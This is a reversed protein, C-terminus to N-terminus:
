PSDTPVQALWVRITTFFNNTHSVPALVQAKVTETLGDGNNTAYLEQVVNTGTNWTLLDASVFVGYAVVRPPLLRTYTLTFHALGDNTNVEFGYQFAPNPSPNRPDQNFAYEVFNVLGDHDFDAGAGSIKPFTLEELSFNAISWYGYPSDKITITAPGGVVTYAINTLVTAVATQDGKINYELIPTLPIVVSNSGAPFTIANTITVYNVGNSATGSFGLYVTLEKSDGTRTVTYEGLVPGMDAAQGIDATISVQTPELVTVTVDSFTTIQGDNATLRFRYDGPITFVLTNTLSGADPIVVNNTGLYLWETVVQGPPLPLGDDSVTGTLTVPIGIQVEVNAGASVVPGHNTLPNEALAIIQNPELALPFVQVEDVSGNWAAPSNSAGRGVIWQPCNTMVGSQGVFGAAPQDLQGNFYLKPAGGNTWTVAINQWQNPTLVGSASDHYIAGQTTPIVVEVLNTQTGCYATARTSLSFTPNGNADDAALIGRNVYNTAPKVWLSVTFAKLGNLFQDAPAERVWDNTGAFTLADGLIGNTTWSPNGSFSGNRGNGSTDAANTGTGDDFPWHLSNTLGLQDAGVIVTLEASGTFVGNTAMLELVYVGAESFLVTTDLSNTNEFQLTSPGSVESWVVSNSPSDDVVSGQLVLGVHTGVLFAVNNLPNTITVLPRQGPGVSDLTIVANSPALITYAANTVLSANLSQSGAPTFHNTASFTLDISTVGCTFYVNTAFASYDVGYVATGGVVLYAMVEYKPDGTRSLRFVGNTAGDVQVTPTLAAITLMPQDDNITVTGTTPLGLFYSPNPLLTLVVTKPGEVLHDQIPQVPLTVFFQGAPIVISNTILVYEAGNKATGGITYWVTVPANTTGVRSFTFQGTDVGPKAATFDSADLWVTQEDDQVTVTAASPYDAHYTGDELLTVIVTREGDVQHDDLPVVNVTANTQGAPITVGNTFTVYNVGGTATGSITFSVKLANTAPGTRTFLFQGNGGATYAYPHNTATVNVNPVNNTYHDILTVTATAPSGVTGNTASILTLFVTQTALLLHNNVPIVPLDVFQAGAPISASTGLAAYDNPASASGTIQFTVLESANTPGVRSIRFNGNVPGPESAVPATATVSITAADDNLITYTHIKIGGLTANVPNFLAVQVTQAPQNSNDNIINLPVFAVQSGPQITLTGQPLAYRSRPATGGIVRYDVTVTQPYNTSLVVAIGPSTSEPYASASFCFSVGPETSLGDDFINMAASAPTGLNYGPSAQLTLVLTQTDELIYDQFPIVDLVVSSSGDPIIVPSPLPAFNFGSVATGNVIFYVPLDGSTGTRTFTFEGFQTGQESVDGGTAKVSVTPLTQDLISLTASGPVGVDYNPTNTLIISVSQNGGLSVGGTPVLTIDTSAAGPPITVTGSLPQYDVGSIATGGVNYHVVLAPTLDGNRQVTFTGPTTPQAAPPSTTTVTVTTYDSNLIIVQASASSALTYASNPTLTINVTQDADVLFDDLPLLPVTTSSQGAPLLVVGPLPTYNLGAVATGGVSYYVLLNNQTSGSRSFVLQGTDSGNEELVPTTTAVEVTDKPAPNANFLHITAEALPGLVYSPSDMNTDELLTLTTTVSGPLLPDVRAHFLFTAQQSGAPIIISSATSLDPTLSYDTGDAATGSLNMQVTLDNSVSGTRTVTFQHAGSDTEVVRNTDTAVSILPLPFGTFNIDTLTNTVTLPNSWSDANSFVYGFKYANLNSVGGANVLTFRGNSDTYGGVYSKIQPEGNGVLVGAIPLGDPDIVYGTIQLGRSAAVTVVVNASTEGGKMDSVVCRVLHDGPTTFTKATWPLNNTSFTLDDFTWSYALADGDPDTATAHFHVLTNLPVNTQDVEVTALPPQDNTFSGLYIQYDIFPETGTQGRQLPTLHVGAAPDNFTRGIVVAADERGASDRANVSGPTTDVLQAGGNSHEWPSWYVMLGNVLWPNAPFQERYELWYNRLADKSLAAAYMRGPVRGAAPVDFPYLRYVGNSTISQVAEAKMWDLINKHVVNFEAVGGSGMTDYPNGYELNIGPGLGSNNTLTNWFNAHWLGYNHGLEHATVGVGMSQLWVGKGHVYALGGFTYSPVPTFAVIDRDYNATDYGAARAAARADALLLSPDQAYYAKVQPLTILPTVTTTLATLNYSNETYYTNVGDMVTYADAASIPETLDDPFNLRMYLVTKNGHTWADNNATAVAIPNFSGPGSELSGGSEALAWQQNVLQYHDEGCFCLVGGGSEAYVPAGRSSAAQGSVSCIVDAPHAIQPDLAAAEPATLVRLPDTSVALQGALAIGHLSISAQSVQGLRRGYVYAQWTRAGLQVQRFTTTTGSAFDTGVAVNYAGRGDVQEEFYQTVAPPLSQRWAYPVALSLARAPDTQILALMAARRQRALEVGLGLNFAPHNASFQEAWHAFDAFATNPLVRAFSNTAVTTGLTKPTLSPPVLRTSAPLKRSVQGAQHKAPEELRSGALHLFYLGVLALLSGAM